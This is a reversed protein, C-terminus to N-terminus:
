QEGGAVAVAEGPALSAMLVVFGPECSFERGGGRDQVRQIAQLLEQKRSLLRLEEEVKETAEESAHANVVLRCLCLGAQLGQWLGVQLGCTPGHNSGM